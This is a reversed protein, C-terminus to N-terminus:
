KTEEKSHKSKRIAGESEQKGTGEEKEGGKEEKGTQTEGRTKGLFIPCSLTLKVKISLYLIRVSISVKMDQYSAPLMNDLISKTTDDLWGQLKNVDTKFTPNNTVNQKM